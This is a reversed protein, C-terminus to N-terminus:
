DGNDFLNIHREGGRGVAIEVNEGATRRELQRHLRSGRLAEPIVLRYRRESVAEVGEVLRGGCSCYRHTGDTPLYVLSGGEYVSACGPCRWVFAVTGTGREEEFM